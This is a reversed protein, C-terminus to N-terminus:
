PTCIFHYSLRYIHKPSILIYPSVSVNYSNINSQNMLDYQGMFFITEGSSFSLEFDPYVIRDNNDEALNISGAMHMFELGKKIFYNNNTPLWFLSFSTEGMGSIQIHSFNGTDGRTEPAEILPVDNLYTSQIKFLYMITEDSVENSTAVQLNIQGDVVNQHNIQIQMTLTFSGISLSEHTINGLLSITIQTNEITYNMTRFGPNSIFPVITWLFGYHAPCADPHIVLDSRNMTFFISAFSKGRKLLYFIDNNKHIEYEIMNAQIMLPYLADPIDIKNNSDIDHPQFIKKQQNTLVNLVNLSSEINIAQNPLYQSSQIQTSLICFFLLNIILQLKKM